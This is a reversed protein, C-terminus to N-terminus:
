EEVGFINADEGGSVEVGVPFGPLALRGGEDDDGDVGSVQGHHAGPNSEEGARSCNFASVRGVPIRLALVAPSVAM